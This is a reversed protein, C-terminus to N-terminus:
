QAQWASARPPPSPSIGARQQVTESTEHRGDHSWGPPKWLYNWRDRWTEARKLQGWLWQLGSTQIDWLRYSELPTVLGFRPPEEERQYTGFLRDWIILVQGYNKDLYKADAGHHVRHNSPTALVHELPGMRDVLRTHNFIGWLNGFFKVTAFMALPVGLLALVFYCPATTGGLLFVNGRQAVLINMENSSHHTHHLAWFLGTRHAIRHDVYYALDNLLWALVFAWLTLPFTFLRLHDFIFTYITVFVLAGLTADVLATFVGNKVNARADAENWHHREQFLYLARELLMLGFFYAFMYWFGRGEMLARVLDGFFEAVADLM